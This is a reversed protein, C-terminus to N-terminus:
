FILELRLIVEDPGYPVTVEWVDRLICWRLALFLDICLNIETILYITVLEINNIGYVMWHMPDWISLLFFFLILAKVWLVM